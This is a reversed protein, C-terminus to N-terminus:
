KIPIVKSIGGRFVIIILFVLLAQIFLVYSYFWGHYLLILSMMWNLSRIDNTKSILRCLANSAVLLISVYFVLLPMLSINLSLWSDLALQIKWSYADEIKSAVYNQAPILNNNTEFANYIRKTLWNDLIFGHYKVSFDSTFDTINLFYTTSTHDFRSITKYLYDILNEIPNNSSTYNLNFLDYAKSLSSLEKQHYIMFVVKAAKLLPSLLFLIISLFIFKIKNTTIQKKYKLFLLYSIFILTTLWGQYVSLVVVLFANAIYIRSSVDKFYALYICTLYLPQLIIFIYLLIVPMSKNYEVGSFGFKYKIALYSYVLNIFLILISIIFHNDIKRFTKFKITLKESLSFWHYFLIFGLIVQFYSFVLVLDNDLKRGRLDGDVTGTIYYIFFCITNAVLYFLLLLKRDINEKIEM